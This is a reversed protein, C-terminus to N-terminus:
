IDGRTTVAMGLCTTLHAFTAPVASLGPSEMDRRSQMTLRPRARSRGRV